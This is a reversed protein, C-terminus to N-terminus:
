NKKQIWFQYMGIFTNPNEKEFVHWQNLNTASSDNPFRNKYSQIVSSDAEFGLFNLGNENIFDSLAKLNMRHEQVHFLLDRCTSTSFFDASSIAFGYNESNKSELLYKRFDRIEQPSSGISEKSILNRVNVIDRRALESYFGLKMLGHTKLLSLLVRWGVFPDELHHLVGSSDIVDFTRNLSDLKLIDAQAYEIFEINLEATKRKAYALSSMSLDVALIDAGKFSQSTGIPQQGTGSGAILIQPNRDDALRIFSSLPFQNQIYSNLSEKISEKPLRVWRPYPSEEYQSQVVLSVQNEISTLAQISKCLDLEEQPELLQQKLVGEVDDSWKKQLLKKAGFISYLPFYCAIAIVCIAPISRDVELANTLQDRLQTSLYIEDPSQFYIYENIFCQKALACYLAPVEAAGDEELMISTGEKLLHFRLKTFFDELEADPIPASSLMAQLLSPVLFEHRSLVSIFNEGYNKQWYNEKSQMLVQMFEKDLKLLRCAFPMANVPRGWPELLATIVFQALSQDWIKPDIQGLL